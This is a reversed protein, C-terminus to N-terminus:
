RKMAEDTISFLTGDENQYEIEFLPSSALAGAVDDMYGEPGMGLADLERRQSDTVLFYGDSFDRMWDALINAPDSGVIDWAEAEEYQITVYTYREYNKFQAPYNHSVVVILADKPATDYMYEAIQEEAKTFRYQNEKGYYGFSFGALFLLSIVIIGASVAKNKHGQKVSPFFVAAGLFSLAPVAFLFIRLIIEGGYSNAIAVAVIAIVMMVPITDRFGNRWRRLFGFGAVIGVFLSLIRGAWSVIIQGRSARGLDVLNAELNSVDGVSALEAGIVDGVFPTAIFFYWTFTMVFTLLPLTILTLRHSIVLLGLFAILALPTLQHSVVMGGILIVMILVLGARQNQSLRKQLPQLVIEESMIREVQEALWKWRVIRVIWQYSLTKQPRFWTLCIGVVFLYITFGLSQPSFYDQGVWNTIFYFWVSLWVLRRDMALARFILLLAGLNLLNFFVTAWNAFSLASELGAIETIFAVLIFFGPWNHYVQMQDITPDVGGYRMIYDVVGVHKWAWMYRLNDYLISISGHLILILLVIHVVFVWDPTEKHHYLAFAFSVTMFFLAGYFTWHLASLLGIDGIDVLDTFLLSCLWLIMGGEILVFQGFNIWSLASLRRSVEDFFTVGGARRRALASHEPLSSSM